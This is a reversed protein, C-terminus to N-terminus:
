VDGRRGGKMGQSHRLAFPQTGEGGMLDLLAALSEPPLKSTVETLGLLLMLSVLDWQKREIAQALTM